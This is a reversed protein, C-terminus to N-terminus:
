MEPLKESEVKEKEVRCWCWWNGNDNKIWVGTDRMEAKQKGGSNAVSRIKLVEPVISFEQGQSNIMTIRGPTPNYRFALVYYGQGYGPVKGVIYCDFMLERPKSQKSQSLM